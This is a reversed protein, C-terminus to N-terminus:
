GLLYLVKREECCMEDMMWGIRVGLGGKWTRNKQLLSYRM